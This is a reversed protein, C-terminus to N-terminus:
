PLPSPPVSHIKLRLGVVFSNSLPFFRRSSGHSVSLDRNICLTLDMLLASSARCSGGRSPQTM